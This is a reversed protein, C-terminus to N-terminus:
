LNPINELAVTVTMLKTLSDPYARKEAEKAYLVQNTNLNILLAEKSKINKKLTNKNQILLVKNEEEINKEYCDTHNKWQCIVGSSANHCYHM